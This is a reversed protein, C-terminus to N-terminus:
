GAAAGRSAPALVAFRTSWTTTTRGRQMDAPTGPLAYGGASATSPRWRGSSASVDNVLSAGAAVAAAAVDAKTTDISVRTHESLAEVVPLV